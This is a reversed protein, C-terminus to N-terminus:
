LKLGIKNLSKKLYDLAQLKQLPNLQDLAFGAASAAASLEPDNKIRDALLDLFHRIKDM